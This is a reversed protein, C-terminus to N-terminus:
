MGTASIDQTVMTVVLSRQLQGGLTLTVSISQADERVMYVDEDFTVNVVATHTPPPPPLPPLPPPGSGGPRLVLSM